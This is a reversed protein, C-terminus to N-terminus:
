SLQCFAQCCLTQLSLRSRDGAYGISKPSLNVKQETAGWVGSLGVRTKEQRYTYALIGSIKTM